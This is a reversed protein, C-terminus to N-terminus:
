HHAQPLCSMNENYTKGRMYFSLSHGYMSVTISHSLFHIRFGYPIARMQTRAGETDCAICQWEASREPVVFTSDLIHQLGAVPLAHTRAAVENRLWTAHGNTSVTDSHNLLHVRFGNPEARLPEFGRPTTCPLNVHQWRHRFLLHPRGYRNCDPPQCRLHGRKRKWAFMFQMGM